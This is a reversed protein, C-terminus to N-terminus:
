VVLVHNRNLQPDRWFADNRYRAFLDPPLITKRKIAAVKPRVRHLGPTGTKADFLENDLVVHTFDHEFPAEGIFEYVRTLARAPDNVLTEYQLLMLNANDEGFFAEKVANYAYGVLGDSRLLQEVRSYVTGDSAYNFIASPQFANRRMLQEVSDLVWRLDRVCAIVRSSPFMSKLAALRTCWYRNTDFVVEALTLGDYFSGFLGELVRQRLDDTIFVSFENRGSMNGLLAGFMSAVPGSINAYFHPNQKLLAALLSSGSRPLGSIFHIKSVMAKENDIVLQQIHRLDLLSATAM